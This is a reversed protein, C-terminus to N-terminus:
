LPVHRKIAAYYVSAASVPIGAEQLLLAYAALQVADNEKVEWEGQENRFPSGKKYDVLRVSGDDGKELLDVVGTIGLDDSSLSISRLSGGAESLAETKLQSATDVRSHVIDGEVTDENPVFINEVWQLYFLRPCYVYNHLRRVPLLPIDETM